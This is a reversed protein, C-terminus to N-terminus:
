NSFFFGYDLLFTFFLFCVSIKFNWQLRNGTAGGSPIPM